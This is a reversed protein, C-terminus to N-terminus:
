DDSDSYEICNCEVFLKLHRVGNVDVFEMQMTEESTTNYRMSDDEYEGNTEPVFDMSHNELKEQLDKVAQEIEDTLIFDKKYDVNNGNWSSNAMGLIYDNLLNFEEDTIPVLVEGSKTESWEAQASKTYVFSEEDDELNIRVIGSEGIYHGDSAEYFNVNRYVEDDFYNELDGVDAIENGDKDYFNLQTDNMSDGGCSFNFEAYAIGFKKWDKITQTM